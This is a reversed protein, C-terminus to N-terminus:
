GKPFLPLLLELKFGTHTVFGLVLYSIKISLFFLYKLLSRIEALRQCAVPHSRWSVIGGVQWQGGVEMDLMWVGDAKDASFYFRLILNGQPSSPLALLVQGYTLVM